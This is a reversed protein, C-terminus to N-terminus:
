LVLYPKMKAFKAPGIGPVKMVDEVRQFGQRSRFSIIRRATAAGVGPLQTLETETASNLSILIEGSINEDPDRNRSLDPKNDSNAAVANEEANSKGAATNANGNKELGTANHLFTIGKKEEMKKKLRAKSLRPVKIHGGDKCLQALNVRDMDAEETVGGALEIVQQARSGKTVEYLGPKAVAGSVCVTIKIKQVQEAVPQEALKRVQKEAEENSNGSWWSAASCLAVSACLLGLKQLTRKEM